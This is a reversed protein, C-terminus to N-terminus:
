MIKNPTLTFVGSKLILPLIWQCKRQFLVENTNNKIIQENKQKNAVIAKIRNFAKEGLNKLNGTINQSGRDIKMPSDTAFQEKLHFNQHILNFIQQYNPFNETIKEKEECNIKMNPEKLKMKLFPRANWKTEFKWMEYYFYKNPKNREFSYDDIRFPDDKQARLDEPQWVNEFIRLKKWLKKWQCKSQRRKKELIYWDNNKKEENLELIWLILEYVENELKIKLRKNTEEILVLCKRRSDKNENAAQHAMSLKLYLNDSFHESINSILLQNDTFAYVWNDSLVVNHLDSLDENKLNKIEPISLIKNNKPGFAINNFIEYLLFNYPPIIPNASSLSSKFEKPINAFGGYRENMHDIIFIIFLGLDKINKVLIEHFKPIKKM